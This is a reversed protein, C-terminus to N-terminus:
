EIVEIEKEEKKKASARPLGAVILVKDIDEISLNGDYGKGKNSEVEDVAMAYLIEAAAALREANATVTM